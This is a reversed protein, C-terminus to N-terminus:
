KGHCEKFKLQRGSPHKAGCWCPANRGLGRANSREIDAVYDVPPGHPIRFSVWTQNGSATVALDGHQIIDMGILAQCGQLADTEVVQVGSVGVNPPIVINVVYSACEKAGHVGTVAHRGSPILGLGRAVSALIVSGM